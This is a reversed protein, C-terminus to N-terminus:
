GEARATLRLLGDIVLAARRVSFASIVVAEARSMGAARQRFAEALAAGEVELAAGHYRLFGARWCTLLATVRGPAGPMTRWVDLAAPTQTSCHM